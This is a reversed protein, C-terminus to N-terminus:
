ISNRGAMIQSSIDKLQAKKMNIDDTIRSMDSLESHNEFCAKGNVKYGVVAWIINITFIGLIFLGAYDSLDVDPM